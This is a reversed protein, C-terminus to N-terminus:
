PTVDGISKHQLAFGNLIAFVYGALRALKGNQEYNKKARREFKASTHM